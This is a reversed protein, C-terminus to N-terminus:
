SPPASRLRHHEERTIRYLVHRRIRHGEPVKPNDFDDAPDRTMGLRQMVRQSRLNTTATMSVIEDLDHEDFGVALAARAAETAYGHGWADHALRWGVEVAPTFHAPFTQLALGTFGVFEGSAKVELAWLGYGRVDLDSQFQRVADDSEERAATRVFHEMVVPDANLAAFPALDAERWDRLVLRETEPM